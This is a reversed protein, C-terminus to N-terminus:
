GLSYAITLGLLIAAGITGALLSLSLGRPRQKPLAAAAGLLGVALALLGYVWLPVDEARSLAERGFRAGLM